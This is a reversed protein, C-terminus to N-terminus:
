GRPTPTAAPAPRAPPPIPYSAVGHRGAANVARVGFLWNDKSIGKVTYATVNGANEVHTWTPETTLRRVIEYSVAGRVATWTLSTDQTLDRNLVTADKPAGPGMALAALNAVNYQTVKALFDFDMYQPLDGFQIGKEVRVDQHQHNWDEVPETFRLAPFGQANFSSHDGGRLFRDTRFVLNGVLPAAYLDGNEKAFRALERSPSDSESGLSNITAVTGDLPIAQSFIRLDTAHSVGDIGKSAGIIDNNLDGEVDIEAAKLTRAHHQSGYLGQEESDYTAFIITAHLNPADALVRAAELVASSGSGNDDAGPADRTGDDNDSNRSDLHSSMVYTRSGPEDGKLTAIVSSIEVDRPIRNAKPQLYSDVAVTMRGRSRKAIERFQSVMWDRAAFIGRNPGAGESFTSRTGFSVLKLDTAKLREASIRSVIQAIVPDPAPPPLAPAGPMLQAGAPVAAVVLAAILALAPLRFSQM